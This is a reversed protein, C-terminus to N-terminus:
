FNFLFGFWLIDELFVYFVCFVDMWKLVVFLDICEFLWYYFWFGVELIEWFLFDFDLKSVLIMLVLLFYVVIMVFVDYEVVEDGGVM